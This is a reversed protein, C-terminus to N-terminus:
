GKVAGVTLGQIFYKQFAPYAILIPGSVVVLIAFRTADTPTNAAFANYEEASMQSANALMYNINSEINMMLLQLPKKWSTNIYLRATMWANWYSVALMFGVSALTPIMCPLIIQSYIRFEGAGDIKASEILSGPISHQIYTRFIIIYMTSIGPLILVFLSDKLHYWQTNVIYGAAQGGSFLMTILMMVSLAGRIPFNPRALTYAFMSMIMIGWFTGVITIGITVCYSYILQTGFQGVTEYAKLSWEGPLFSVGMTEIYSQSTFSAIVSLIVPLLCFLAWCGLLLGLILQAVSFRKKKKEATNTM